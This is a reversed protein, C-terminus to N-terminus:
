QKRRKVAFMYKEKEPHIGSNFDSFVDVDVELQNLYSIIDQLPYVKQNFSITEAHGNEDYFAFHHNIIQDPLSLITWQFSHGLVIGEECYEELFEDYRNESHIDFFFVGEPNLHMLAQRIIRKLEDFDLIYNLSDGFLLIADYSGLSDLESMSSLITQADPNKKKYRILMQPDIDLGTCKFNSKLQASISGTGCALDLCTGKQVYNLVFDAYQVSVAEDEVLADFIEAFSILM